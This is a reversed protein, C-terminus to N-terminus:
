SPVQVKYKGRGFKVVIGKRELDAVVRKVQQKVAAATRNERAARAALATQEFLAQGSEIRGLVWRETESLEASVVSEELHRAYDRAATRADSYGAIVMRKVLNVLHFPSREHKEFFRVLTPLDLHRGTLQEYCAAIHAVFERGMDPFPLEQASQYFPMAGHAFTKALGVKSSGTFLVAIDPGLLDLQTRLAFALREFKPSTALHQIEDVLLLLPRKQKSLRTLLERIQALEDASVTRPNTAFEVEAGVKGLTLIEAEAKLRNVPMALFRRLVSRRRMAQEAAKLATLIPLHPQDKDDWLNAYVVVWGQKEALPALDRLLFETKGKRRAAYVTARSLSGNDFHALSLQALDRRPFHWNIPSARAKAM